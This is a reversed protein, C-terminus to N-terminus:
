NTLELCIKMDKKKSIEAGTSIEMYSLNGQRLIPADWLAYAYPCGVATPTCLYTIFCCKFSCRM